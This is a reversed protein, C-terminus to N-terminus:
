TNNKITEFLNKRLILEWKKTAYWFQHGAFPIQSSSYNEISFKVAINENPVDGINYQKMIKSFFLDEPINTMKRKKMDYIIVPPLIFEYNTYNNIIEIMIYKNRLSFGGNGVTCYNKIHKWPAGIYDYKIFDNINKKFIYSDEQYIIIKNGTFQEWFSKTLLLQNYQDITINDVNLKIININRNINQIINCFFDYNTNGCVITFSWDNGLKLIANRILLETHPLIRFEIFVAEFNKNKEIIPLNIKRFYENYELCINRFKIKYDM